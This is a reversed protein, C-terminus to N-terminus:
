IPADLCAVFSCSVNSLGNFTSTVSPPNTFRWKLPSDFLGMREFLSESVPAYDVGGLAGDEGSLNIYNTPDSKSDFYASIILTTDDDDINSFSLSLTANIPQNGFRIYTKTGDLSEFTTEPYKGPTFSRSSPKIDPFQIQTGM